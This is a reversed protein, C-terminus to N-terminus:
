RHLRHYRHSLQIFHQKMEDFLHDIFNSDAYHKQCLYHLVAIYYLIHVAEGNLVKEIRSSQYSHSGNYGQCQKWQYCSLHQHWRGLRAPAARLPVQPIEIFFHVEHNIHRKNINITNFRETKIGRYLTFSTPHPHTYRQMTLWLDCLHCLHCLTRQLLGRFYIKSKNICIILIYYRRFM